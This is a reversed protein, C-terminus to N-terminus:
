LHALISSPLSRTMAYCIYVDSTWFHVHLHVNLYFLRSVLTQTLLTLISRCRPWLLLPSDYSLWFRLSVYMHSLSYLHPFHTIHCMSPSLQQANGYCSYGVILGTSPSLHDLLVCLPQFALLSWCTVYLFYLHLMM